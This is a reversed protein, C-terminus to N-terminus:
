KILVKFAKQYSESLLFYIGDQRANFTRTKNAVLQGTTNYVNFFTRSEVTKGSIHFLDDMTVNEVATLDSDDAVDEIACVEIFEWDSYEVDKNFGVMSNDTESDPVMTGHWGNSGNDWVHRINWKSGVQAIKFKNWSNKGVEAGTTPGMYAKTASVNGVRTDWIEGWKTDVVPLQEGTWISRYTAWNIFMFGDGDHRLEWLQSWSNEKPTKLRLYETGRFPDNVDWELYGDADPTLGTKDDTLALGKYKIYYLTDAKFPNEKQALALNGALVFSLLLYTFIKTKM